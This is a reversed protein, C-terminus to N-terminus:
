EDKQLTSSKRTKLIKARRTFRRINKRKSRKAKKNRQKFITKWKRRGLKKKIITVKNLKIKSNKLFFAM